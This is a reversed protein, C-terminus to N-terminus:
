GFDRRKYAESRDNWSGFQIKTTCKLYNVEYIIILNKKSKSNLCHKKKM